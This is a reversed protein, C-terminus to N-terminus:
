EDEAFFMRMPFKEDGCVKFRNELRNVKEIADLPLEWGDLKLNDQIRKVNTSKPIVSTGRQIGWKLMIQQPTRGLASAIEALTSDNFLPSSTSGLCSYATCHIGQEGCYKLLAPSPHNPHLEIQNVSPIMKCSPDNLLKQLYRIGFNSVGINRTKGTSPLKQM